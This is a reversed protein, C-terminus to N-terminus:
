DWLSVPPTTTEAPLLVDPLVIATGTPLTPGADALGPNRDYLQELLGPQIGCHRYILADLTDHQHSRVIM